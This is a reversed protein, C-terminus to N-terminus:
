RTNRARKRPQNDVEKFSARLLRALNNSRLYDHFIGVNAINAYPEWTPKDYGQWKVLVEMNSKIQKDSTFKHNLIKEVEFTLNDATAVTSPNTHRADHHFPRLLKVHFDELKNSDMHQVTYIDGEPRAVKNIIQCPGRLIPHLKSPPKHGDKEYAVLVYDNIRFETKRLKSSEKCIRQM